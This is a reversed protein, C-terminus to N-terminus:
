WRALFIVQRIATEYDPVPRYQQELDQISQAHTLVNGYGPSSKETENVNARSNSHQPQLVYNNYSQQLLTTNNFEDALVIQHQQQQQPPAHKAAQQLKIPTIDVRQTQQHFNQIESHQITTPFTNTLGSHDLMIDYQTPPMQPPPQQQQQSQFPHQMQQQQTHLLYHQGQQHQHHHSDPPHVQHTNNELTINLENSEASAHM